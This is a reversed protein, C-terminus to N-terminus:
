MSLRNGHGICWRQKWSYSLRITILSKITQTVNKPPLSGLPLITMALSMMIVPWESFRDIIWYFIRTSLRVLYAFKGESVQEHSSHELNFSARPLSCESKSSRLSKTRIPPSRAGISELTEPLTTFSHTVSSSSLFQKSRSFFIILTALGESFKYAHSYAKFKSHLFIM